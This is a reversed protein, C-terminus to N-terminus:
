KNKLLELELDMKKITAQMHLLQMEQSFTYQHEHAHAPATAPAAQAAAASVRLAQMIDAASDVLADVKSTGSSKPTSVMKGELAAVNSGGRQTKAVKKGAFPDVPVAAPRANGAVGLVVEV